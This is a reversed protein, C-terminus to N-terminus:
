FQGSRVKNSFDEIRSLVEHVDKVVDKGDVVLSDEKPKRLAVHLVSRGETNNIKEGKFM